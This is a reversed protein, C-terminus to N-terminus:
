GWMLILWVAAAVKVAFLGAVPGALRGSGLTAVMAAKFCINSIAAVLIAEWGARAGMEGSEV